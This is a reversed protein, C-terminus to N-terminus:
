GGSILKMDSIKEFVGLGSASTIEQNYFQVGYEEPGYVGGTHDPQECGKHTFYRSERLRKGCVRCNRNTYPDSVHWPGLLEKKAM